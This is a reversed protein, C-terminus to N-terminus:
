HSGEGPGQRSLLLAVFPAALFFLVALLLLAFALAVIAALDLVVGLVFLGLGAVLVGPPFLAAWRPLVVNRGFPRDDDLDGRLDDLDIGLNWARLEAESLDDTPDYRPDAGWPDRSRDPRTPTSASASGPPERLTLDYSARRAPDGLVAWAENVQRMREADGGPRDPHHTRALALYAQRVETTSADPAVGLVEYHGTM